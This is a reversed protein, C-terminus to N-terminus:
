RKVERTRERAPSVESRGSRLAATPADQLGPANYINAARSHRLVKAISANRCAESTGSVSSRPSSMAAGLGQGADIALCEDDHGSRVGRGV